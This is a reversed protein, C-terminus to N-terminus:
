RERYPQKNVLKGDRYIFVLGQQFYFDTIYTHYSTISENDPVTTRNTHNPQGYQAIVRDRDTGGSTQGTPLKPIPWVPKGVAWVGVKRQKGMAEYKDWGSFRPDDRNLTAYGDALLQKNFNIRKEGAVITIEGSSIPGAAGYIRVTLLRGGLVQSCYKNYANAAKTPVTVGAPRILLSGSLDQHSQALFIAGEPTTGAFFGQLGTEQAVATLSLTVLLAILIRRPM